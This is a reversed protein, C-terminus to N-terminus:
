FRCRRASYSYQRSTQRRASGSASARPQAFRHHPNPTRFRSIPRFFDLLGHRYLPTNHSKFAHLNPMSYSCDSPMLGLVFCLLFGYIFPHLEWSRLGIYILFLGVHEGCLSANRHQGDRTERATHGRSSFECIYNLTVIVVVVIIFAVIM